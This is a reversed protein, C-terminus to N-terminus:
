TCTVLAKQNESSSVYETVTAVTVNGITYMGVLGDPALSLTEMARDSGSTSMAFAVCTHHLLEPEAASVYWHDTVPSERLDVEGSGLYKV